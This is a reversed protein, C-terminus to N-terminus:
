TAMPFQFDGRQQTVAGYTGAAAFITNLEEGQIVDVVVSTIVPFFNRLSVDILPKENIAIRSVTLQLRKAHVAVDGFPVSPNTRM